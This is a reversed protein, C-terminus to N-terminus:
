PSETRGPPCLLQGGAIKKSGSACGPQTLMSGPVDLGVQVGVNKLGNTESAIQRFEARRPVVGRFISYKLRVKANGDSKSCAEFSLPKWRLAFLCLVVKGQALLVVLDYM